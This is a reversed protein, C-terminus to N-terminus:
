FAFVSDLIRTLLGKKAVDKLSGTNELVIKLDAMQSSLITNQATVDEERIIGSLVLISIEDDKAIQKTAELLITGNPKVELVTATVRASFQDTREYDGEGKFKRRTTLDILDTAETDGSRARLELLQMFDVIADMTAQSKYEKKTNLSQSSIQSSTEDIIITVIDHKKLARAEPGEIFIASIQNLEIAPESDETDTDQALFLSQGFAPTAFLPLCALLIHFPKPNIM